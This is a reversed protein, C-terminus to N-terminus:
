RLELEVAREALEGTVYCNVGCGVLGADAFIRLYQSRTRPHWGDLDGEMEDAKIFAM